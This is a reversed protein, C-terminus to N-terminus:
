PKWMSPEKQSQYSSWPWDGPDQVLGHKVPNWHIHSVHREFDVDDRIRHEWYRRQWVAQEGRLKRAAPPDPRLAAPLGATFRGKIRNLRMPYNADGEPLTWLAHLHDPLVVIAEIRFPFREMVTRFAGRLLDVSAPDALLPRRGETVVTFFYSSGPTLDRRYRM